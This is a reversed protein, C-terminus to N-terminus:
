AARTRFELPSLGSLRKQYRHHNYFHIYDDVAQKLAEYSDYRHLYYKECKLTGWFSEIPGNDICRGVRSMSQTMRAEELIYRFGKSTYQYGRDSHILPKETAKLQRIAQRMTTFVLRNNNSNGLVYSVISGDYLDIIASLYAKKGNAYKFETVDTCWKQNPKEAKFERNLVNEAIHHAPSKRYNKRKQRIVSKLRGVRMLRYIRKENVKPQNSKQRKRNITLTLRRYGYIGDVQKHLLKMAELITQNELERGSPKRNLWKYYAARSM